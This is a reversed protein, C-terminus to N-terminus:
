VSVRETKIIHFEKYKRLLDDARRWELAPATYKTVAEQQRYGLNLLSCDFAVFDSFIM